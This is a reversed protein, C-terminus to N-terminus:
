LAGTELACAIELLVDHANHLIRLTPNPAAAPRALQALALDLRLLLATREAITLPPQPAPRGCRRAQLLPSASM